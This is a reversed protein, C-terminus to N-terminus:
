RDTLTENGKGKREENSEARSRVAQQEKQYVKFEIRVSVRTRPRTRRCVTWMSSQVM